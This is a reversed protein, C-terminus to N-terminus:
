TKKKKDQKLYEATWSKAANMTTFTQKVTEKGGINGDPYRSAEFAKDRKTMLGYKINPGRIVEVKGWAHDGDWLYTQESEGFNDWKVKGAVVGNSAVYANTAKGGASASRTGTAGSSSAGVSGSSRGSSSGRGGM